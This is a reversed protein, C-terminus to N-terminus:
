GTKICETLKFTSTQNKGGQSRLKTQLKLSKSICALFVDLIGIQNPNFNAQAQAKDQNALISFDAPPLASVGILGALVQPPVEPLVRRLLAVVQVLPFFMYYSYLISCIDRDFRGPGAPSGRTSGAATIGCGPSFCTFATYYLSFLRFLPSFCTIATYYLASVGILGALIQPPVEPLVHWLLAVVQILPFFM